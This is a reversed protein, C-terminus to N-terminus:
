NRDKRAPRMAVPARAPEVYAAAPAAAVVAAPAAAQAVPRPAPAAARPQVADALALKLFGTGGAAGTTQGTNKSGSTGGEGGASTTGSTAPGGSAGGKTAGQNSATWNEAGPYGAVTEGNARSLSTPAGAAGDSGDVGGVGGRGITVRYVGPSLYRSVSTANADQAGSGSNRTNGGGGGGAAGSWTIQYNGEVFESTAANNPGGPWSAKPVVTIFCQQNVASSPTVITYQDKVRDYNTTGCRSGTTNQALAPMAAACALFMLTFRSAKM